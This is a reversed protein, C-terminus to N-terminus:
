KNDFLPTDKYVPKRRESFARVAEHQDEAAMALLCSAISFILSSRADTELAGYVQQKMMRQTVPPIKILSQALKKTESELEELAVVRNLLGMRYAEEANVFECTMMLELTRAVGVLRPLIWAEGTNPVLGLRSYGILFRTNYAAVRMDCALALGFGGGVVDGKLMAIVPKDLQPLAVILKHLTTLFQGPAHGSKQAEVWIDEAQQTEIEGQKVGAFKFDGGASFAEGAGTLVVVRINHDRGIDDIAALMEVTMRYTLANKKQPRNLTITAIQNEKKLIIEKFDM